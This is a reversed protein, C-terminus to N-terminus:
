FHFLYEFVSQRNLLDKGLRFTSEQDKRKKKKSKEQKQQIYDHINEHKEEIHYLTHKSTNKNYTIIHPKKQKEPIIHCTRNTNQICHVAHIKMNLFVTYLSYNKVRASESICLVPDEM